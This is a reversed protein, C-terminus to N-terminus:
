RGIALQGARPKPAPSTANMVNSVLKIADKGAAGNVINYATVGLTATGIISAAFKKGRAATGPNLKKYNQELQMRENLKKLEENSLEHAKKKRLPSVAANDDSGASSKRKGWKMGKVGYHMLFDDALESM